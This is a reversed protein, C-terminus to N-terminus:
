RLFSSKYKEPKYAVLREIPCTIDEVSIGPPFQQDYGLIIRDPRVEQIPRLYDEPDGLIVHADPMVDEIAKKRVEENQMVSQKKIHKVTQDRAVAVWLEGRKEAEKLFYLHGPHLNDFTGFALVRM